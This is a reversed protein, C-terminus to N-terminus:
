LILFFVVFSDIIAFLLLKVLSVIVVFLKHKRRVIMFNYILTQIGQIYSFLSPFAVVSRSKYTFSTNHEFVDLFILMNRDYFLCFKWNCSLM